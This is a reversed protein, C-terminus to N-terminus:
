EIELHCDRGQDNSYRVVAIDPKADTTFVIWGKVCDGPKYTEEGAFPYEPKPYDEYTSSSAPYRSGDDGNVTWPSWSHTVGEEGTV